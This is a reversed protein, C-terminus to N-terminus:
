CAVPRKVLGYTKIDRYMKPTFESFEIGKQDLYYAFDYVNIQIRDNSKSNDYIHGLSGGRCTYKIRYHNEMSDKNIEWIGNENYFVANLWDQGMTTLAEKTLNRNKTQDQIWKLKEDTVVIEPIAYIDSTTLISTATPNSKNTPLEMEQPEPPKIQEQADNKSPLDNSNNSEEVVEEKPVEDLITQIFDWKIFITRRNKFEGDDYIKITATSIFGKKTLEPIAKRITEEGMFTHQAIISNSYTIKENKRSYHILKRLIAEQTKTIHYSKDKSQTSMVWYLADSYINKISYKKM